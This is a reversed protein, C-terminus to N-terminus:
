SEWCYGNVRGKAAVKSAAARIHMPMKRNLTSNKNKGHKRRGLYPAFHKIIARNNSRLSYPYHTNLITSDIQAIQFRCM